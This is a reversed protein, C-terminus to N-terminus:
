PEATDRPTCTLERELLESSQALYHFAVQVKSPQDVPVDFAGLDLIAYQKGASPGAYQPFDLHAIKGGDSFTVASFNQGPSAEQNSRHAFRAYLEIQGDAPCAISGPAQRRVRHVIELHDMNGNKQDIQFCYVAGPLDSIACGRDLNEAHAPPAITASSTAILTILKLANSPKM